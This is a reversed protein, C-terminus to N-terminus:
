VAFDAQAETVKLALLKSVGEEQMTVGYLMDAEEMTGRRHTISIFQTRRSLGRLYAAFKTVNVDDLAAEIEDLVCFPAPKFLLIAFYIAIAVFAQEGGSLLSLNKIVKGPPEVFIEVGSELVNDPDTLTLEAKGGGFLQTFVRSFRGAIKRFSDAFVDRMEQTLEGILATIQEKSNEVDRVQGSLFEYRESVEKYEEVAGVNVSGLAKIKGRLEGLRRGAKDPDDPVAAIAAAQTRTLEYEDWLKTIILDYEGQVAFRREELRALERSTEERRASIEREKARLSTTEGELATRQALTSEIEGTLAEVGSKLRLKEQELEVAKEAIEANGRELGSKEEALKETRTGASQIQQTIRAIDATINNYENEATLLAMKQENLNAAATEAGIMLASRRSNISESQAALGAARAEMEELIASGEAEGSRLAELRQTLAEFEQQALKRNHVAQALGRQLHELQADLRARAEQATQREAHAGSVAAALASLEEAFAKQRPALQAAQESYKEAESKLRAIEGRRGLVGASKVTSGGTFSGGTNIVQGDLTVVRVSYGSSKAIKQASDLDEAVIVRGLLRRIIATFKADCEVLSSAAGIFGDMGEYARCDAQTGKVTSLPLFTARGANASQLMRIARKATEEDETVINQLAPGLATEIATATQAKTTILSSVAGYIGSVAGREAQALIHKVSGAFGEMNRELDELLRARGLGAEAKDTLAKIEAELEDRRRLRSERKIEYGKAANVLAAISEDSEAIQLKCEEIDASIESIDADHSVGTQRLAELRSLGEAAAAAGSAQELRLKAMASEISNKRAGLEELDADLRAIQERQEALREEAGSIRAGMAANEAATNKEQEEKERLLAFLSDTGLKDAALEEDIRMISQENHRTDSGCVAIEAECKSLREENERVRGRLSDALVSLRRSEEYVRNISEEVGESERTLGEYDNKCIDIRSEHAALREKLTDLSRIWLSIELGKKEESLALFSKAKEAQIRLPGIRSELEGLIDRLRALNEEAQILRREAEDKRYRFKSIGAAEEFIERREKSKASVIEAIRGQGIIAYGDRGLGTDMLLEHVDRLRVQAGGVRYESEGSRYLRRSIVIEDGQDPLIKDSNDIVLQVSAFGVPKRSLTGGFIVDEMRAGRLTKSSQEGLVWRVADAINSKGSGNPGVVATIGGDFELKTKDPFSKFGQLELSRLRM